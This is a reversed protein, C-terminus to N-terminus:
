GARVQQSQPSPTIPDALTPFRSALLVREWWRAPRLRTDNAAITRQKGRRTRVTLMGDAHSELVVWYKKVNYWYGEGHTEPAIAEARPGPHQSHKQALFVVRDGPQYM